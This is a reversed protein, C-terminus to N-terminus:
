RGAREWSPRAPRRSRSTHAGRAPKSVYLDEPAQSAPPPANAEMAALKAAAIPDPHETPYVYVAWGRAGEILGECNATLYARAKEVDAANGESLWMISIPEAYCEMKHREGLDIRAVTGPKVRYADRVGALVIAYTGSRSYPLSDM